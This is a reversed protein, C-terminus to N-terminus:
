CLRPFWAATHSLDEFLIGNPPQFTFLLLLGGWLATLLIPVTWIPGDFPGSSRSPFWFGLAMVLLYIGIDVWMSQVPFLIHHIYGAALTAPLMLSLTLLWPRVGGPRGHNLCLASLLYPWFILKGHEWLSERVPSFLATGGNPLWSYLFHLFIGLAMAAMATLVLKRTEYYM